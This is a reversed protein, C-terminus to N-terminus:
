RFHETRLRIRLTQRDANLCLIDLRQCVGSITFCATVVSKVHATCVLVSCRSLSLRYFLFAGWFFKAVLVVFNVLLDIVPELNSEIDKSSCRRSLLGVNSLIDERLQVFITVEFFLCGHLWVTFLVSCKQCVPEDLSLTWKTSVQICSSILAVFASM